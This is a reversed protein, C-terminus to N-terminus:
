ASAAAKREEYQRLWTQYSRGSATDRGSLEVREITGVPVQRTEVSGKNWLRLDTDGLNAIYGEVRSGDALTLTVDGRYEFAV